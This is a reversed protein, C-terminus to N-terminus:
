QADGDIKLSTWHDLRDHRGVADLYAEDVPMAEGHLPGMAAAVHLATLARFAEVPPLTGPQQFFAVAEVIEPPLGWLGLLYGGVQGSTAGFEALEAEPTAVQTSDAALVAAYRQPYECALVLTGSVSLLGAAQAYDSEQQGVGEACAIAHAHAAIAASHRWLQDPDIGAARCNGLERFVHMGLVLHLIRDTGLLGVAQTVDAVRRAIGFFSSNVLQLVKATMGPDRGVVDAIEALSGDESAAIQKIETFAAPFSPLSDISSVVALLADDTLASRMTMTRGIAAKLRDTDCPKSLYQHAVGVASVVDDDAAQGSLVIRVTSPHREAVQRLM